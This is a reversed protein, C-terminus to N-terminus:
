RYSRHQHRQDEETLRGTKILYERKTALEIRRLASKRAANKNKKKTHFRIKKAQLMKGSEQIRKTFRRLMSEFSEGKRRKIDLV